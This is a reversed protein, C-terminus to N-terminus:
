GIQDRLRRCIAPWFGGPIPMAAKRIIMVLVLLMGIMTLMRALEGGRFLRNPQRDRFRRM